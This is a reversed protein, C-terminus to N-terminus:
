IAADHVGRILGRSKLAFLIGAVVIIEAILISSAAGTAGFHPIICTAVLVNSIGAAIVIRSFQKDMGFPIMTNIGLVNSVASLVPLFAVWRVIPVIRYANPGFCITVLPGAFAFILLSLVLTLGCIWRLSRGTFALAKKESEARLKSVHPFTAQIVPVIVAQMGRLLREAASFLGAEMNGALAGVLFVNTNTYLGMAASSIFLDWGEALTKRLEALRPWQLVLRFGSLAMGLGLLGGLVSGASQIGVALLADQPGHVFVFLAMAALIRAVGIVSTIYRMREIGQFYWTPFLANGAVGIYAVGFFAWESRIQRSAAILAALIFLGALTLLIKVLYVSCFIRSIASHNNRQQAISRTASFNFGYDTFTTFYQAFSQAVAVLGFREVGLVRVLYPLVALPILYYLGLLAYLSVINDALRKRGHIDITEQVPQNGMLGSLASDSLAVASTNRDSISQEPRPEPPAIM